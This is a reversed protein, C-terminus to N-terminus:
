AQRKGCFAVLQAFEKRHTESLDLGDIAASAQREFASIEGNLLIRVGRDEVSKRVYDIDEQTARPNGFIGDLRSHEDKGAKKMLYYYLLTKKGETIDSGVPKGTKATDGLVGLEDDRIQFIIGAATGAERLRELATDPQGALAAGLMLPLAVTYAATKTAMLEYIAEKSPMAGASELYIDQMQGACTAALQRAFLRQAEPPAGALLEMGLFLAADGAGLAMSTGFHVADALSKKEAMRRYQEHIAPEGRRLADDDMIDDHVLLASHALEIAAAADLVEAGAPKGSFTEYSFCVLCGRLLKGATAFPELRQLLDGEWPMSPRASGRKGAFFDELTRRVATSHSLIQKM